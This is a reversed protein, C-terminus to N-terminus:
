NTPRLEEPESLLADPPRCKSLLRLVLGTPVADSLLLYGSRRLLQRQCWERRDDYTVGYM